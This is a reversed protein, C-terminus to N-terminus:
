AKVYPPYVDSIMPFHKTNFTVLPLTHLQATAAILADAIGTGHSKSYQQKLSGAIVATQTDIPLVAFDLLILEIKKKEESNRTGAYLEAVTIVSVYFIADDNKELFNVAEAKDRLYDILVDTDVLLRSSSM